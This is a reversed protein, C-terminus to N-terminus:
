GVKKFERRTGDIMLHLFEDSIGWVSIAEDNLKLVGIEDANEPTREEFPVSNCSWEGQNHEDENGERKRYLKFDKNAALILEFTENEPFNHEYLNYLRWIGFLEKEM